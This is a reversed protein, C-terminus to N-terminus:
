VQPPREPLFAHSESLLFDNKARLSRKIKKSFSGNPKLIHCKFIYVEKEKEQGFKGEEDGDETDDVKIEYMAGGMMQVVTSVPVSIFMVFVLFISAYYKM